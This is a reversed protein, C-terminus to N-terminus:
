DTTDYSHVNSLLLPPSVHAAMRRRVREAYLRARATADGDKGDLYEGASQDNNGVTVTAIASSVAVAASEVETDLPPPMVDLVHVTVDIRPYCLTELISLSSVDQKYRTVIPQVPFRTAFAGSRFKTLTHVNAFLGQPFVYMSSHKYDEALFKNMLDVTNQKMGRSIVLTPTFYSFISGFFSSSASKSVIVGSRFFRPLILADCFGVHNSVFVVKKEPRHKGHDSVTATANNAPQIKDMGLVQVHINLTKNVANLFTVLVSSDHNRMVYNFFLVSFHGLLSPLRSLGRLYDEYDLKLPSKKLSYIDIYKQSSPELEYESKIENKNAGCKQCNSAQREQMCRQHALIGCSSCCM